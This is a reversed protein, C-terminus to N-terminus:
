KRKFSVVRFKVNESESEAMAIAAAIAAIIEGDDTVDVVTESVTDEIIDTKVPRKAPLDHFFFKFLFLCAWLICLVAFVTGMGLLLMQIGYSFREGFGTIPLSPDIDKISLFSMQIM